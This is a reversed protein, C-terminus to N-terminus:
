GAEERSEQADRKCLKSVHPHSYPYVRVCILTSGLWPLFCNCQLPVSCLQSVFFCLCSLSGATWCHEWGPYKGKGHSGQTWCKRHTHSDDRSEGIFEEKRGQSTQAPDWAETPPWSVWSRQPKWVSALICAQLTLPWWFICSPRWLLWVLTRRPSSPCLVSQGPTVGSM